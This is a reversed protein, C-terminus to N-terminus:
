QVVLEWGEAVVDPWTTVPRVEAGIPYKTSFDKRYVKGEANIIYVHIGGREYSFPSACLGFEGTFDYPGESDGVIDAFLYGWTSERRKLFFGANAFDQDIYALVDGQPADPYGVQYLDRYGAGDTPNAFVLKGIGYRDEVRFSQQVARYSLLRAIAHTESARILKCLLEISDDEADPPLRDRIEKPIRFSYERPRRFTLMPPPPPRDRTSQLLNGAGFGGVVFAAM